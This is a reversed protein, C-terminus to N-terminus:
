GQWLVHGVEYDIFVVFVIVRRVHVLSVACDFHMLKEDIGVQHSIHPGTIILTRPTHKVAVPWDSAGMTVM